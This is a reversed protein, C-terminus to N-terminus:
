RRDMPPGDALSAVAYAPLELDSTLYVKVRHGERITVTPLGNLFRNMTQTTAQTTAEAGSGAIVVTRDGTGRNIGASGVFQALGSILGVAAAAGFTSKYHRNVQDHLGADGAQNLGMFQELPYTSGDPLILRDFTVALRVEGVAQVPKTQGLVRAGAPILVLGGDHSYVPNTVLCNVPAAVAGNLRTALVTDIVTGETLRHLPGVSTIPGTRRRANADSGSSAAPPVGRVGPTQVNPPPAQGARASARMVAAAVEDLSPPNPPAVLEQQTSRANRASDVPATLREADARRSVAVNSAFLSDHERRVREQQVADPAAARRPEAYSDRPQATASTPPAVAQQRAREDLARMREQYERLRDPSPTLQTANATMSARTAPAPRGTFAVIALIVLAVGVM